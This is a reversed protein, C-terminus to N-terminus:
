SLIAFKTLVYVVAITAAITMAMVRAIVLVDNAWDSVACVNAWLSVM